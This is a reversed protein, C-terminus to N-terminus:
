QSRRFILPEGRVSINNENDGVSYEHSGEHVSISNENDGISYEHSGEYRFVTKITVSPISM